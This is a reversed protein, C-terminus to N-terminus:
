WIQVHLVKLCAVIISRVSQAFIMLPNVHNELIIKVLLQVAFYEISVLNIPWMGNAFGM